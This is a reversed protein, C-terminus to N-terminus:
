NSLLAIGWADQQWSMQGTIRRLRDRADWKKAVSGAFRQFNLKMFGGGQVTRGDIWVEEEDEEEEASDVNAPLLPPFLFPPVKGSGDEKEDKWEQRLLELGEAVAARGDRRRQLQSANFRRKTM